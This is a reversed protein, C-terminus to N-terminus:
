IRFRDRTGSANGNQFKPFYADTKGLASLSAVQVDIHYICFKLWHVPSLLLNTVQIAFLCFLM